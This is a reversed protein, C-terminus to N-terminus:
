SHIPPPSGTWIQISLWNKQPAESHLETSHLVAPYPLPSSAEVSIRPASFHFTLVLPLPTRPVPYYLPSPGQSKRPHARSGVPSVPREVVTFLLPYFHRFSAKPSPPFCSDQTTIETSETKFFSVSRLRWAPPTPLISLHTHGQKAFLSLAEGLDLCKPGRFGPACQLFSVSDSLLLM